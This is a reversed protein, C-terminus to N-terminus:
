PHPALHDRIMHQFEALTDDTTNVRRLLNEYELRALCFNANIQCSAAVEEVSFNPYTRLLYLAHGMQEYSKLFRDWPITDRALLDFDTNSLIHMKTALARLSLHPTRLLMKKAMNLMEGPIGTQNRRQETLRLCEVDIHHLIGLRKAAQLATMAPTKRLLAHAQNLKEDSAHLPHLYQAYRRCFDRDEQERQLLRREAPHHIAFREAIAEWNNEGETRLARRARNMIDDSVYVSDRLEVEHRLHRLDWHSVLNHQEAAQEASLGPQENLADRAQNMRELTAPPADRWQEVFTLYLKDMGNRIALQQAVQEAGIRPQRELMALASHMKATPTIERLRARIEAANLRNYLAHYNAGLLMLSGEDTDEGNLGAFLGVGLEQLAEASNYYRELYRQAAVDTQLRLAPLQLLKEELAQTMLTVAPADPTATQRLKDLLRRAQVRDELPQSAVWQRAQHSTQISQPLNILSRDHGAPQLHHVPQM